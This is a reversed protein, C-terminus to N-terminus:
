PKAYIPLGCEEKVGIPVTPFWVSSRGSPRWAADLKALIEIQEDHIREGRIPPDLVVVFKNGDNVTRGDHHKFRAGTLWIAAIRPESGCVDRLRGVAREDPREPPEIWRGGAM